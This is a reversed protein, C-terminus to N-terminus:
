RLRLTRMGSHECVLGPLCAVSRVIVIESGATWVCARVLLVGYAGCSMSSVIMCRPYGRLRWSKVHLMLPSVLPSPRLLGIAGIPTQWYTGLASLGGGWFLLVIVPFRCSLRRLWSAIGLSQSGAITQLLSVITPCIRILTGGSCLCCKCPILVRCWLSQCLACTSSPGAM